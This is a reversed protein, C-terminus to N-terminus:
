VEKWFCRDLISLERYVISRLKGFGGATGMPADSGVGGM